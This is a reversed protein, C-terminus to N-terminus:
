SEFAELIELPEHEDGELDEAWNLGVLIMDEHLGPLWEDLWEETSVPVPQYCSWDDVCHRQALEPQSWFPMVPTDDHLESDCLAFGEDNALALVWVCGTALADDYFQDLRDQNTTM